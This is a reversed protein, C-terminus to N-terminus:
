PGLRAFAEILTVAAVTGGIMGLVAARWLERRTPLQALQAKIFEMDDARQYEGESIGAPPPKAPGYTGRRPIEARLM